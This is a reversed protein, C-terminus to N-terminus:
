SAQVLHWTPAGHGVFPGLRSTRDMQALQSIFARAVLVRHLLVFWDRCRLSMRLQFQLPSTGLDAFISLAAKLDAPM